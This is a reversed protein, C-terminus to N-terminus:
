LKQEIIVAHTHHDLWVLKHKLKPYEIQFTCKINQVSMPHVHFIDQTEDDEVDPTIPYRNGLDDEIFLDISTLKKRSRNTIWTEVRMMHGGFGDKVIKKKVVEMEFGKVSPPPAKVTPATAAPILMDTDISMAFEDGPELVAQPGRKWLAWAIGGIAGIAAGGAINYGHMAVTQEPGFLKYAVLAGLAAGGAAHAAIRGAGKLKTKNTSEKFNNAQARFAFTKGDPTTFRDFSLELHGPRGVHRPPSIKAVRGHFVTGEPIVKNDDVYIDETTKATIIENLQAPRLNGEEDRMEMKMQPMPITALKLKIPTGSPVCYTVQGKLLPTPTGNASEPTAVIPTNQTAGGETTGNSTSVSMSAGTAPAKQAPAAPISGPKQGPVLAPAPTAKLGVPLRQALAQKRDKIEEKSLIEQTPEPLPQEHKPVDWDKVWGDDVDKSGPFAQASPLDGAFPLGQFCMLCSAAVALCALGTRRPKAARSM